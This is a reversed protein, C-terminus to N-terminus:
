SMVMPSYSVTLVATWIRLPHCLAWACDVSLRLLELPLNVLLWVWDCLLSPSLLFPEVGDCTEASGESAWVGLDSEETKEIKVNQVTFGGYEQKYQM